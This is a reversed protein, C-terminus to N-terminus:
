ERCGRKCRISSLQTYERGRGGAKGNRVVGAGLSDQDAHMNSSLVCLICFHGPATTEAAPRTIILLFSHAPSVHGQFPDGLVSETTQKNNVGGAVM